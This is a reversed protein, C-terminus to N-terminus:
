SWTKGSLENFGMSNTTCTWCLLLSLSLATVQRLGRLAWKKSKPYNHDYILRHRVKTTKFPTHNSEKSSVPSTCEGSIRFSLAGLTGTSQPLPLAPVFPVIPSCFNLSFSSTEPQSPCSPELSAPPLLQPPLSPYLTGCMGPGQSLIGKGKNEGEFPQVVEVQVRRRKGRDQDEGKSRRSRRKGQNGCERAGGGRSGRGQREEKARRSRKRRRDRKM